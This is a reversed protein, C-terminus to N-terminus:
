IKIYFGSNKNLLGFKQPSLWYKKQSCLIHILTYEKGYISDSISPTINEKTEEELPVEENSDVIVQILSDTEIKDWVKPIMSLINFITNRCKDCDDKIFSLYEYKM